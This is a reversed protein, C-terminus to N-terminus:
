VRREPAPSFRWESGGTCLVGRLTVTAGAALAALLRDIKPGRLPNHEGEDALTLIARSIIRRRIEAPADAPRYTITAGEIRVSRAWEADAAWAIAEDAQALHRASAAIPGSGLGIAEGLAQHVRVREFRPEHNSPDDVPTVGAAACVGRLEAPTWDLLPRVLRITADPVFSLPRMAALGSVGAGRALRMLFTEAQDDQHHGTLIASVRREVAWASLLAYRETRAREQVATTPKEQWDLKLIRHPIGFSACLDAVFVAEDESEARLQHDVTAAEVRNPRATNALLLLAVSDPGGSVAIGIRADPEVLADLDRAFRDILAPDLRDQPAGSM